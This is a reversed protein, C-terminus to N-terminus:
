GVKYLTMSNGKGQMYRDLGTKDGRSHYEFASEIKNDVNYVIIDGDKDSTFAVIHAGEWPKRDNWFSVIYTGGHKIADNFDKPNNYKAYNLGHNELVNGIKNPNTGRKGGSLLLGDMNNAENLVDEFDIEIGNLTLANYIAIIGCGNEAITGKTGVKLGSIGNDEIGQGNICKGNGAGAPIRWVAEEDNQPFLVNGIASIALSIPRADKGENYEIEYLKQLIDKDQEPSTVDAGKAVNLEYYLYQYVITGLKEKQIDNM